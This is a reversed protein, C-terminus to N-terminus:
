KYIDKNKSIWEITRRLGEEFSVEPKWGTKMARSIDPCRRQPDDPSKEKYQIKSKSNTKQIIRNALEKITIEKDNGVNIIDFDSKNVLHSLMGRVTDTVYCFSRTQSGDGYVTIDEENLAQLIFRSLARGYQGDPRIRPGFTNFIRVIRVDLNYERKYAMCLAEGYRKGEDYCSRHGVSNVYGWYDEPTPIMQADGYIESTSSYLLTCNNKRALELMNKTGEANTLLTDIQHAKYDDPSARSALHIIYDFKGAPDANRVDLNIFEFGIKNKLHDVNLSLSSSYNDICSVRAGMRILIDCIWSGLFGAGGTILINKNQFYKKIQNTKNEIRELEELIIEDIM